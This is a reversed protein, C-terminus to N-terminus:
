PVKIGTKKEERKGLGKIYCINHVHRNFWLESLFIYLCNLEELFLWIVHANYSRGMLTTQDADRHLCLLYTLWIAELIFFFVFVFCFGYCPFFMVDQIHTLPLSLDAQVDVFDTWDKKVMHLFKADKDIWFWDLSSESRVTLTSASRFRPQTCTQLYM